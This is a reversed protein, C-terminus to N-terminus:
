ELPLSGASTIRHLHATFSHVHDVRPLRLAAGTVLHLTVDIRPNAKREDVVGTGIGTVDEWLIVDTHRAHELVLGGEYLGLDVAVPRQLGLWTLRFGLILGGLAVLVGALVLVTPLHPRAAVWAGLAIIAPGLVLGVPVLWARGHAPHTSLRIGLDETLTEEGPTRLWARRTPLVVLGLVVLALGGWLVPDRGMGVLRAPWPNIAHEGYADTDVVWMRFTAKSPDPDRGIDRLTGHISGTVQEGDVRWRGRCSIIEGTGGDFECREVVSVKAWQGSNWRDTAQQAVVTAPFLMALAGLGLTILVTAISTRRRLRVIRRSPEILRSKPGTTPLM